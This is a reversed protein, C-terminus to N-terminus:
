NKDVFLGDEGGYESFYLYLIEETHLIKKSLITKRIM